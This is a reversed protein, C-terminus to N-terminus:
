PLHERHELIYDIFDNLTEFGAAHVYYMGLPNPEVPLPEMAVGWATIAQPRTVPWNNRIWAYWGTLAAWMEGDLRELVKNHVRYVRVYIIQESRLLDEKMQNIYFEEQGTTPYEDWRIPYDGWRTTDGHAGCIVHVRIDRRWRGDPQQYIGSMAEHTVRLSDVDCALAPTALLLAFLAFALRM